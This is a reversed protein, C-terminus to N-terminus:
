DYRWSKVKGSCSGHEFLKEALWFVRIQENPCNLARSIAWDIPMVPYSLFLFLLEACRRSVLYACATRTSKHFIEEVLLGAIKRTNQSNCLINDGGALDLYDFYANELSLSIKELSGDMIIVDDEFVILYDNSSSLFTKLARWHKSLVSLDGNTLKRPQLWSLDSNSIKPSNSVSSNHNIRDINDLLGNQIYRIDQKWKDQISQSYSYRSIYSEDEYAYIQLDRTRLSPSSILHLTREWLPAYSIIALSISKNLYM